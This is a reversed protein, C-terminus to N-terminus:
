IRNMNSRMQDSGRHLWPQLSELVRLVLRHRAELRRQRLDSRSPLSAVPNPVDERLQRSHAVRGHRVCVTEVPNVFGFGIKAIREQTRAKERDAAGNSFLDVALWTRYESSHHTCRDVDGLEHRRHRQESGDRFPQMGSLSQVLAR